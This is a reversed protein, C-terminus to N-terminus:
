ESDRRHFREDEDRERKEEEQEEERAAKEEQDLRSLGTAPAYRLGGECVIRKERLLGDVVVNLLDGGIGPFSERLEKKSVPRGMREVAVVVMCLMLHEFGDLNLLCTAFTKRLSHLM